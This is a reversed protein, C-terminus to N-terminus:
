GALGTSLAAVAKDTTLNQHEPSVTLVVVVVGVAEAAVSGTTAFSWHQVAVADVAVTDNTFFWGASSAPNVSTRKEAM